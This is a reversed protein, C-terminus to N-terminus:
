WKKTLVALTAKAAKEWSFKKVQGYGKEILAQRLEENELVLKIAKAIDETKEPNIILGADGAVEPLSGRDSTIVPIGLAMAELIPLGFGEMLSPYVFASAIKYVAALDADAVRGIFKVGRKKGLALIEDYMWGKKGAIVLNPSYSKPLLAIAEILRVLNKRPQITGVFLIYKEPLSYKYRIQRLYEGSMKSRHDLFSTNIGEQIVTIKNQDAKLREVLQRKTWESVAIIKDAFKVAYETSKNLWLKQPFQYYQPLYEYELGHVTVVTKIKSNRLVPLTHAPVWLVDVPHKMLEWALGGQTWLRSWNIVKLSLGQLSSGVFVTRIPNRVYLRWEHKKAEPLELIAKIIEKSYNETGTNQGTEVRSADIGILM